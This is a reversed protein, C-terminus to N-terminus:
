ASLDSQVDGVLEPKVDQKNEPPLRRRTRRRRHPTGRRGQAVKARRSKPLKRELYQPFAFMSPVPDLKTWGPGGEFHVSCTGTHRMVHEPSLSCDM